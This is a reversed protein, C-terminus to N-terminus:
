GSRSSGRAAASSSLAAIPRCAEIRAGPRRPFRSARDRSYRDARESFSRGRLDAVGHETVVIDVDARTTTVPRGELSAVIRSHKGDATTSPLAIISRGGASAIAGRVFDVQGGIAGLYRGAAVESNVNGTLDVEVGSNISYLTKM